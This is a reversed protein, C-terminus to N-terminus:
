AKEDSTEQMITLNLKKKHEKWKTSNKHNHRTKNRKAESQSIM